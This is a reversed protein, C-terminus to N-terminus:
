YSEWQQCTCPCGSGQSKDLTVNPKVDPKVEEKVGGEKTSPKPSEKIVKVVDGETKPKKVFGESSSVTVSPKRKKEFMEERALMVSQSARIDEMQRPLVSLMDSVEKKQQLNSKKYLMVAESKHGTQEKILQPDVGKRFLRTCTSKRMSYNKFNGEM